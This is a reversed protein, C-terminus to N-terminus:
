KVPRQTVKKQWAPDARIQDATKRHFHKVDERIHVNYSEWEDLHGLLLHHDRGQVECLTILNSPDLELQPHLHFPKVHHVQVGKGQYGCAVCAPERLLHEKEVRSWEPSRKHGHLAAIRAGHDHRKSSRRRAQTPGRRRTRRTRQGGIVGVLLVLVILIAFVIAVTQSSLTSALSIHM